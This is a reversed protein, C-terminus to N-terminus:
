RTVKVGRILARSSSKGLRNRQHVRCSQVTQNDEEALHLLVETDNNIGDLVETSGCYGPSRSEITASFFFLIMTFLRSPDM